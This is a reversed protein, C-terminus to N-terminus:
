TLQTRLGTYTRRIYIVMTIRSVNIVASEVVSRDYKGYSDADTWNTYRSRSLTEYELKFAQQFNTFLYRNKTWLFRTESFFFQFFFQLLVFFIGTQRCVFTSVRCSTSKYVNSSVIFLSEVHVTLLSTEIPKSCNHRLNNSYVKRCCTRRVSSVSTTRTRSTRRRTLVFACTCFRYM